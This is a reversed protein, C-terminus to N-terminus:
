VACASCAAQVVRGLVGARGAPGGALEGYQEAEETPQVDVEEEGEQGGGGEEEMHEEGFEHVEGEMGGGEEGGGAAVDEEEAPELEEEGQVQHPCTPTSM